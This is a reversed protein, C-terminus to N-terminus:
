RKIIVNGVHAFDLNQSHGLPLAQHTGAQHTGVCGFPIDECEQIGVTFSCWSPWLREQVPDGCIARIHDTRGYFDDICVGKRILTSGISVLPTPETPVQEELPLSDGRLLLSEPIVRWIWDPQGEEEAGEDDNENAEEVEEEEEEEEEKDNDEEQEEEEEDDDEEEEEEEQEEEEEDDDEEKEEEEEAAAATEENVDDKCDNGRKDRGDKEKTSGTTTRWLRAESQCKKLVGVM